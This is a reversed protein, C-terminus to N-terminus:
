RELTMPRARGAVEQVPWRPDVTLVEGRPAGGTVLVSDEVKLSPASPNWALVASAGVRAASGPVAVVERPLYGATGGQHHRTWEDAAFGHEDYAAAGAALAEGLSAGPVSADLLASEVRALRLAAETLAPDERGFSVWRTASAVLGNRRGCVVLVARRGLPAGTPLPHRAYATRSEGAVLLVLPEVGRALLHRAAEGAWEHETSTPSPALAADTVAEATDRGLSRFRDVEEPVLHSRVAQLHAAVDVVDATWPVDSGVEPGHPLADTLVDAWPVVQWRADALVSLDEARLRPAEIADTVVQEHLAAGDVTLVVAACGVPQDALVRTRGGGSWWALAAPSRLVLTGLGRRGAVGLLRATKEALEGPTRGTPVGAALLGSM